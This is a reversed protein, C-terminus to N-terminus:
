GVGRGSLWGVFFLVVLFLEVFYQNLFRKFKDWVRKRYPYVVRQLAAPYMDKEKRMWM